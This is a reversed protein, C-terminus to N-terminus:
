TKLPIAIERRASRVVAYVDSDGACGDRDAWRGCCLAMFLTRGLASWPSSCDVMRQGRAGDRRRGGRPSSALSANLRVFAAFGAPLAPLDDHEALKQVIPGFREGTRLAIFILLLAIGYIAVRTGLRPHLLGRREGSDSVDV